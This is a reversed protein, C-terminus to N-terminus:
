LAWQIPLFLVLSPVLHLRTLFCWVAESNVVRDLSWVILLMTPLFPFWLTCNSVLFQYSCASLCFISLLM